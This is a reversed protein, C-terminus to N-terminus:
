RDKPDLADRLGDGIFNLSFLIIALIVAPFLLTHPADELRKAGESILVGLSTNPEQVGLGLFSLFSEVLIVQPVVLTVYVIVPGLLNPIIHRRIINFSSVGSARAAIVFERSKLSLTQGRVIRAMTLWEVAGIAAFMLIFNRGFLVMLLIVIFMFPLAYIIDVIRMMVQDTRGGFYGATAGYAVGIVLAVMSATLGVALSVLVGIMCRYFLDRDNVGTGFWLSNAFDPMRPFNTDNFAAFQDSFMAENNLIIDHPWPTLLPALFAVVIIIVLAVVSAMALKNRSFRKGADAWLSRGKPLAEVVPTGVPTTHTTSM